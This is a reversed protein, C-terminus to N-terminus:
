KPWKHKGSSAEFTGLQGDDHHLDLSIRQGDFDPVDFESCIPICREQDRPWQILWLETNDTLNLGLISARSDEQFEADAMVLRSRFTCFLLCRLLSVIAHYVGFYTSARDLVDKFDHKIIVKIRLM